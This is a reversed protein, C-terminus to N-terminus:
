RWHSGPGSCWCPSRGGLRHDLRAAGLGAHRRRRPQEGTRGFALDDPSSAPTGAPPTIGAMSRTTDAPISRTIDAASSDAPTAQTATDWPEPTSADPGVGGDPVDDTPGPTTDDPM